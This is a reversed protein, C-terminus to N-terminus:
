LVALGVQFLFKEWSYFGERSGQKRRASTLKLYDDFGGVGALWLLCLVAMRVYYNGLDALLLTSFLIAGVIMVGGMTPTNAKQKMLQNLDKNYFEPSDGIKLRVLFRITRRGVVLVFVFSLLIAMIARFEPYTFPRVFGYVDWSKLVKELVHILNFIM